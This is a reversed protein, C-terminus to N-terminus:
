SGQSCQGRVMYLISKQGRMTGSLHTAGWGDLVGAPSGPCMHSGGEELLGLSHGPRDTSAGLGIEGDKREPM